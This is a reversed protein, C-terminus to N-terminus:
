DLVAAWTTISHDGAVVITMTFKRGDTFEITDGRQPNVQSNLTSIEYANLTAEGFDNIRTVNQDLTADVLHRDQYIAQSAVVSFIDEDAQAFADDFDSM